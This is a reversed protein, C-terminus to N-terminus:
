NDQYLKQMKMNRFMIADLTRPSILRPIYWNMLKQAVPAYRVKPKASEIVESVVEAIEEPKMGKTGEAFSYDFFAQFQVKYPSDGIVTEAKAKDWIPTIVNGPAVLVVDIGFPMLERRWAHSLGEVAHKTAVYSGLFPIGIAGATSSINIIKASQSGNRKGSKMLPLFTKTVEILGFVNVEFMERIDESSQLELPAAKVIGSNNVLVHLNEGKLERKVTEFCQQITQPQRVDLILPMFRNGWRKACKDANQQNRLTGFVRYGKNICRDAIAEGIGSSVGTTLINIM